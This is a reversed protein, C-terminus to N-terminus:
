PQIGPSAIARGAWSLYFSCPSRASSYISWFRPSRDSKVMAGLVSGTCKLASIWGSASAAPSPIVILTSPGWLSIFYVGTMFRTNGRELVRVGREGQGDSMDMRPMRRVRVGDSWEMRRGSPTTELCFENFLAPDLDCVGREGQGESTDSLHSSEDREREPREMRSGSPVMELCFEHFLVPGLLLLEV